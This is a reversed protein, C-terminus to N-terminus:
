EAVYSFVSQKHKALFHLWNATCTCEHNYFHLITHKMVLLPSGCISQVHLFSHYRESIGFPVKVEQSALFHRRGSVDSIFPVDDRKRSTYCVEASVAPCSDHKLSGVVHQSEEDKMCLLIFQYTNTEESRGHKRNALNGLCEARGTCLYCSNKVHQM